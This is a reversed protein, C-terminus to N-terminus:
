LKGACDCGTFTGGKWSKLDTQWHPCPSASDAQVGQENAIGNKPKIIAASATEKPKTLEYFKTKVEYALHGLTALIDNVGEIGFAKIYNDLEGCIGYDIEGISYMGTDDDSHYNIELLGKRESMNKKREQAAM